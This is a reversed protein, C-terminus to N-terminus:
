RNRIQWDTAITELYQTGIRASRNMFWIGRQGNSSNQWLLDLQGDHNFDGTGAIEWERAITGLNTSSMMSTGNMRWIGRQGTSRHQWVIDILRDGDFDGTGAIKWSADVTPLNRVGIRATGNMLWIGTQGTATNRWLLDVQGDANFDGAGAITWDRPVTRLNATGMRTTGRMFWVARRGSPDHQWVIDLERDGNFDGTGAINWDVGVTAFVLASTRAAGAMLWIGRQGTTENQWIIDSHTDNNFDGKATPELPPVIRVRATFPDPNGTRSDIWVPVAPVISNTPDAVGQYDGLMYGGGTKPSLRADTSVSTVRINPQWTLGGDFSHALYIDVLTSSGPNDRTDYFAVALQQGDASASIAANFVSSGAPNDSIPVPTSWTVGANTSKTFLIRPSGNHRAQYTLYLSGTTRDTTASPLFGGDRVQPADYYAVPRIVRPAGFTVGGDPSLVLELFDDAFSDTGNFNWYIVALRGDRLFVPQSGQVQKTAAHIFAASSWTQGGNNSYVRAIPHPGAEGEGPFLTFTVVIRGASPTGPFTNIAMWNKDPFDDPSPARYAVVPPAFTDGNTSRSVLVTGARTASGAALTNLYANRSLAVGAVPDTARPYPGGSSPTLNPILARTWTFGGDRSVSYGCNVASGGDAFRGEQFTAILYDLEVPSRMIHPEAQARMSPPLASPDNGLRINGHVRPDLSEAPAEPGPAGSPTAQLRSQRASPLEVLDGGADLRLLAGSSLRELPVHRLAAPWYTRDPAESTPAGAVDLRPESKAADPSVCVALAVLWRAIAVRSHNSSM